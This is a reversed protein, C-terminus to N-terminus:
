HIASGCRWCERVRKGRKGSEGLKPNLDYLEGRDLANLQNDRGLGRRKGHRTGATLGRARGIHRDQSVQKNHPYTMVLNNSSFGPTDKLKLMRQPEPHHGLLDLV